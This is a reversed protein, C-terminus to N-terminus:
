RTFVRVDTPESCVSCAQTRELIQISPKSPKSSARFDTYKSNISARHEIIIRYIYEILMENWKQTTFFIVEPYHICFCQDVKIGVQTQELIKINSSVRHEYFGHIHQEPESSARLNSTRTNVDWYVTYVQTGYLM